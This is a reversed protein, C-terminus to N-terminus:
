NPRKPARHSLMKRHLVLSDRLTWPTKAYKKRLQEADLQLNRGSGLEALMSWVPAGLSSVTDIYQSLSRTRAEDGDPHPPTEFPKPDLGYLIEPRTGDLHLGAVVMPQKARADRPYEIALDYIAGKMELWSHDFRGNRHGVLGMCPTSPIRQEALLIHGIATILYSAGHFADDLNLLGHLLSLTLVVEAKLPRELPLHIVADQFPSLESEM